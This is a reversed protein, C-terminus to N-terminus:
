NVLRVNWNGFSIRPGNYFLSSLSHHYSNVWWKTQANPHIFLVMDMVSFVLLYCFAIGQPLFFQDLYIRFWISQYKFSVQLFSISLHHVTSSLIYVIFYDTKSFFTIWQKFTYQYMAIISNLRLYQFFEHDQFDM